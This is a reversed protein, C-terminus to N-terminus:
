SSSRSNEKFIQCSSSKTIFYNVVIFSIILNNFSFNFSIQDSTTSNRKKFYKITMGVVWNSVM